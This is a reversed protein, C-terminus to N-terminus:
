QTLAPNNQFTSIAQWQNQDTQTMKELTIFFHAQLCDAMKRGEEGRNNNKCLTSTICHIAHLPAPSVIVSEQSNLHQSKILRTCEFTELQFIM